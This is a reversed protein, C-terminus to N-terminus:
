KKRWTGRAAEVGKKRTRPNAALNRKKEGIKYKVKGRTQQQAIFKGGKEGLGGKRAAIKFWWGEM